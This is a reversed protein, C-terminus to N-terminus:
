STEMCRWALGSASRRPGNEFYLQTQGFTDSPFKPISEGAPLNLKDTEEWGQDRREYVCLAGTSAVVLQRGRLAVGVGFFQDTPDDDEPHLVTQLTWATGDTTYVHVAGHYLFTESPGINAPPDINPGGVVAIKDTIAASTGLLSPGDFIGDAPEDGLFANQAEAIGSGTLLAM